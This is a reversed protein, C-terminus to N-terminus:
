RNPVDLVKTCKRLFRVVIFTLLGIGAATQWFPDLRAERFLVANEGFEVLTFMAMLGCFGLYERQIATKFSFPM